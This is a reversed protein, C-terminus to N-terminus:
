LLYKLFNLDHLESDYLKSQLRASAGTAIDYQKWM